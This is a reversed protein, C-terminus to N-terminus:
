NKITTHMLAYLPRALYKHTHPTDSTGWYRLCDTPSRTLRVVAPSRNVIAREPVNPEANMGIVRCETQDWEKRFRAGLLPLQCVPKLHM